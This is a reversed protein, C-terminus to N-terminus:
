RTLFNAQPMARQNWRVASAPAPDLHLAARSGQLEENDEIEGACLSIGVDGPLRGVIGTEDGGELVRKLM